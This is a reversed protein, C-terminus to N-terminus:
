PWNASAATELQAAGSAGLDPALSQLESQILWGGSKQIVTWNGSAKSALFYEGTNAKDTFGVLAYNGLIGLHKTCTTDLGACV